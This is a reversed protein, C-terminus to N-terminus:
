SGYTGVVLTDDDLWGVQDGPGVITSEGAAIDLLRIRGSDRQPDGEVFVLRTGDPSLRPQWVWSEATMLETVRGRADIISITPTQRGFLGRLGSVVLLSGDGLPVPLAADRAVLEPDGGTVPVSWVDFPSEETADRALQFLVRDGDASFTPALWWWNKAAGGFDAITTSSGSRLDTVTLRGQDLGISLREQVVLRAGDPSWAAGYQSRGPSPRLTRVDGGEIGMVTIRADVSCCPGGALMTGDPSVAVDDIGTTLQLLPVTSGTDLDLASLDLGADLEAPVAPVPDVVITGDIIRARLDELTAVTADDLHDGTDTYGVAGDAVGVAFTGSEPLTGADRAAVVARIGAEMRKYMSTLLHERQDTSVDYYQDSDVGIAWLPRAATSREAAAEIVGMGSGGAAVYVVDAGQEYMEIAIDHAIPSDMYGVPDTTHFLQDSVVEIDPDVAAAGQEFGARFAEILPSANAGIYGVKGTQSQLAAAAGVLYSGQEAAFSVGVTNSLPAVTSDLLAFTTDPFEDAMDALASSMRYSGFVISAGEAADRLDSAVNTYPPQVVEVDFGFEEGAQEVGRAILEEFLGEGRRADLAAVITGPDDPRTVIPYAIVGALAAAAVFLVVLQRRARRQLRLQHQERQEQDAANAEGAAVAATLFDQEAATLRLQTTAAWTRYDVLRTGHLLYGPDRGSSEWENVAALFSSQKSLDDRHRDIWDRLRHWESLLAEHAVEVTPSGSAPDRDLALLRHRSYADIVNRLAVLDIDLSV